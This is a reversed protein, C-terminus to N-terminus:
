KIRITNLQWVCSGCFLDIRLSGDKDMPYLVFVPRLAGDHRSALIVACTRLDTMPINAGDDNLASVIAPTGTARVADILASARIGIFVTTGETWPTDGAFRGQPLADPMALDFMAADGAYRQGIKGTITMIPKDAPAVLCSAYAVRSTAALARMNFDDHQFITM